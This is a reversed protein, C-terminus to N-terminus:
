KIGELEVALEGKIEQATPLMAKLGPPLRKTLKVKYEAVGIPKASDRLAYEVVIGSKSKCLILGISPEDQEGRVIADVASLYFQMKGSYEPKFDDMKLDIVVFCHLKTNYFLLDLYYDQGGVDLHYQQGVFAFGRGLELIFKRLHDILMNELERERADEAIEMFDFVYPDKVLQQALESQAAPLTRKFNTLAKGQRRFVDTEIQHLLINRSWGHEIAAQAYWQREDAKKLKDLLVLHHGWPLKAAVQQLISKENWARAFALMANLNRASFGKMNPFAKSLDAALRVVVKTGWGQTAQREQIERGIQWYLMILESNVATIARVQTTQIRKKLERVWAQYDQQIQKQNKQEM